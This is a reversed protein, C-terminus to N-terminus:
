KFRVMKELVGIASEAMVRYGEVSPHIWDEMLGTQLRGSERFFPTFFDILPFANKKALSKIFKRLPIMGKELNKEHIPLPLCLCPSIKNKQLFETIKQIREQIREPELQEYVDNAGGQLIVLKPNLDIVDPYIRQFMDRFSNGNVGANYISVGLRDTVQQVWSFKKGFPYGYTISDGLAVWSFSSM